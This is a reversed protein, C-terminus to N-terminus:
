REYEHPGCKAMKCDHEDEDRHEIFPQRHM